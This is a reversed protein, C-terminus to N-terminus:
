HVVLDIWAMNLPVKKTAWDKSTHSGPSFLECLQALLAGLDDWIPKFVLEVRRGAKLLRNPNDM